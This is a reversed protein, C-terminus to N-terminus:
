KQYVTLGQHCLLYINIQKTREENLAQFKCEHLKMSLNEFVGDYLNSNPRLILVVTSIIKKAVEQFNRLLYRRFLACTSTIYFMESLITAVVSSYNENRSKILEDSEFCSDPTGSIFEAM